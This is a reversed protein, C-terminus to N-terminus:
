EYVVRLCLPLHFEYLRRDSVVIPNPMHKPDFQMDQKDDSTLDMLHVKFKLKPEEPRRETRRGTVKYEKSPVLLVV